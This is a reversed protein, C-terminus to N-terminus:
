APKINDVNMVLFANEIINFRMFNIIIIRVQLKIIIFILRKLDSKLNNM